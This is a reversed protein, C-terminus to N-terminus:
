FQIKCGEIIQHKFFLPCYRQKCPGCNVYVPKWHMNVLKMMSEERMDAEEWTAVKSILVVKRKSKQTLVWWMNSLSQSHQFLVTGRWQVSDIKSKEPWRLDNLSYTGARPSNPWSTRPCLMQWWLRSYWPTVLYASVLREFPERVVLFTTGSRLFRLRAQGLLAPFRAAMPFIIDSLSLSLLRWRAGVTRHCEATSLNNLRLLHM